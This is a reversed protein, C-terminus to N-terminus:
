HLASVQRLMDALRDQYTNRGTTILQQANRLLVERSADNRLLYQAKDVLESAGSFYAAAKWEPGFIEVHDETREVLMSIGVAPMEFTRMCHGDRNARRVLCLGTRASAILQNLMAPGLHGRALRRTSRFRSWYDGYLAMDIGHSHLAAIYPVRDADAGGAFIVDCCNDQSRSSIGPTFLDSDYGFRLYLVKAGTVRSLDAINARRPTFLIDYNELSEIFWGARRSPSWPDDTLFNMKGVHRGCRALAHASVPVLGTCLLFDPSWSACIEILRDNFQAFCNPKKDRLHWHLSRVLRPGGWAEQVELVRVGLGSRIAARELSGGINTGGRDGVILLKM